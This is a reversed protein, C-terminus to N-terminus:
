FVESDGNGSPNDRDLWDTWECELCCFRCKNLEDWIKDQNGLMKEQNELILDLKKNVSDETAPRPCEEWM